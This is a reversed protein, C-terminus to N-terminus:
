ISPLRESPYNYAPCPIPIPYFIPQAQSRQSYVMRDVNREDISMKLM